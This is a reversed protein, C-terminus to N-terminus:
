LLWNKSKFRKLLKESVSFRFNQRFDSGEIDNAFVVFDSTVQLRDNWDFAGLFKAVENLM